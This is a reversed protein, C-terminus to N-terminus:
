CTASQMIAQVEEYHKRYVFDSEPPIGEPAQYPEQALAISFQGIVM